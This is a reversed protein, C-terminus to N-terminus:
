SAATHLAEEDSLVLSLRNAVGALEFLRLVKKPVDTLHFCNGAYEAEKQIQFLYPLAGATMGQINALCLVVDRSGTKLETKIQHYMEAAIGASLEGAPRVTLAGNIVKMLPFM